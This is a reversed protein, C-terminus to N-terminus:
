QLIFVDLPFSTFSTRVKVRVNFTCYSGFCKVGSLPLVKAMSFGKAHFRHLPDGGSGGEREQDGFGREDDGIPRLEKAVRPRRYVDYMTQM